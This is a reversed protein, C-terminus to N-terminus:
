RWEARVDFGHDVVSSDSVFRLYHYRGAFETTLAPATAGTYRAVRAWAGGRWTWVELYDYGNELRFTGSAALRMAAAGDPLNVAKWVSTGNAYPHATEFRGGSVEQWAPGPQWACANTECAWRGPIAPAILGTCDAPADCYTGAVCSGSADPYPAEFTSVDYRCRNDGACARGQLGGCMDGIAGCEGAHAVDVQACGAFCPNGYTRGDLGCVPQYIEACLCLQEEVCADDACTRSSDCALPAGDGACHFLAEFAEIARAVAPTHAGRPAVFHVDFGHGVISFAEREQDIPPAEDYGPQWLLGETALQVILEHVRTADIAGLRTAEIGDTPGLGLSAGDLGTLQKGTYMRGRSITHSLEFGGDSVCQPRAPCECDGVPKQVAFTGEPCQQIPWMPCQRAAGQWEVADIAFGHRTISGDTTLTVPVTRENLAFWETWTDDHTGDFSQVPEGVPAVEVFDYSAETRLVAFHLRAASACSPLGTLDVSWTRDLHNTYPHPSEVSLAVVRSAADAKGDLETPISPPLSDDVVGKADDKDAVCASLLLGAGLAVAVHRLRPTMGRGM